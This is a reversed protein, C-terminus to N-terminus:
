VTLSLVVDGLLVVACGTLTITRGVSTRPDARFPFLVQRFGTYAAIAGVFIM